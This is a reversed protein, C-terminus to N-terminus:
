EGPFLEAGKMDLYSELLPDDVYQRWDGPPEERERLKSALRGFLGDVRKSDEPGVAADVLPRLDNLTAATLRRGDVQATFLDSRTREIFVSM